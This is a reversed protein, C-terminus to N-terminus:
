RRARRAVLLLGPLLLLLSSPVPVVGYVGIAGGALEYGTLLLAGGTPSDSAPIFLLSEPSILGDGFSNIYALFEPNTPDSLDYALLGNQRELGMFAIWRDDFWAITLAEPEPGKDPSRTDWDNPTGNQTNHMAPDLAALLPELSGTDGVLAGTDANWISYSRTGPMLLADYKATKTANGAIGDLDQVRLRGLNKDKQAEEVTGYQAGLADKLTQSFNDKNLSSIRIRDGDDPRFDGENATMYYTTGGITFTGIADPMPMGAVPDDIKIAKGGSPGDRDSADITQTITGLPNIATWQNTALDFTAVANNEQLTVYLKGNSEALYEPEVHRYANGATFTTDNFRLSTLSVGTGLNAATFDYTQVQGAGLSALDGISNVGALNIVSISGPADSNGGSTFEGENVVFVKTGDASFRVSDPHFGVNLTVLNRNADPTGIRYDYFGVKGAVTGNDDPILGVVGFGRQLPDAATSSVGGVTNAGQFAASFDVLGRETLHGDGGLTLIQVGYGHTGAMTSVVTNQDKTFGLIEASGDRAGATQTFAQILSIHLPGAQATSALLCASAIATLPASRPFPTM